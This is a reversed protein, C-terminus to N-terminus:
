GSTSCSTALADRRALLAVMPYGELPDPSLDPVTLIDPFRIERLHEEV